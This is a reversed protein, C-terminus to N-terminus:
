PYASIAVRGLLKFVKTDVRAAMVFGGKFSTGKIIPIQKARRKAPFLLCCGCLNEGFSKKM